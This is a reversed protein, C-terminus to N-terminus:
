KIVAVGEIEVLLEPRCVDAVVCAIPIGPFRKKCIDMVVPIDGPFKVYARLYDITVEQGDKVGHDKLNKWSLLNLIHDITLATQQEVTNDEMSKEGTIAATGSVFIWRGDPTIIVKAREFKPTTRCFDSMLNNEALVQKSYTYADVQVPNKLGIVESQDTFRAAIFDICVGGFDMGIGTAAPFGHEFTSQNYYKSRIDNFIQYHQSVSGNNTENDTIREIYNWQRIIDSWQMKEENLITQLQEFAANSQQLINGGDFQQHLGSAVVVRMNKRQVVLWSGMHNQKMILEGENLGELYVMEVILDNPERLQPIVSTPPLVEFFLNAYTIIKLKNQDYETASAASIFVTQKIVSFKAENVSSEVFQKYCDALKESLNTGRQPSFCTNKLLLGKANNTTM